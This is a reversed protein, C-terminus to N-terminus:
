RESAVAAQHAKSKRALHIILALFGTFVLALVGLMLLVAWGTANGLLGPPASCTVCSLATIM